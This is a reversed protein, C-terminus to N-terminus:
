ALLRGPHDLNVIEVGHRAVSLARPGNRPLLSGASRATAARLGPSLPAPDDVMGHRSGAHHLARYESRRREPPGGIPAHLPESGGERAQCHGLIELRREPDTPVVRDPAM